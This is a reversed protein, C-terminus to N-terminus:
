LFTKKIDVVGYESENVAEEDLKKLYAEASDEEVTTATKPEYDKGLKLTKRIEAELVAKDDSFVEHSLLSILNALRQEAALALTAETTRNMIERIALDPGRVMAPETNVAKEYHTNEEM